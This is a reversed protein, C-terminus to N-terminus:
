FLKGKEGSTNVVQKSSFLQFNEETSSAFIENARKTINAANHTLAEDATGIINTATMTLDKAANHMINAGAATSVNKGAVNNIHEGANITATQGANIIVNRANFTMTEPATITINKGQTDLHITNGGPDRIIIHTGTNGNDNLEITHGSRTTISKTINDTGGGAGNNGHFLSGMVFPRAVNGEEFGVLVQDGKEPIFVFGRNKSVLDSNGGDPTLVRLWETTDNNNCQWKFQVKIRGQQQPDQNDTVQALQMDALPKTYAPAPLKESDANIGEFHNLYHGVGDIEHTVATILFKGIDSTAFDGIGTRLSTSIAAIGGLQVQPNDGTGTVKLLSSIRSLEENDTHTAIASPTSLRISGPGSHLTGFTARSAQLAHVQDPQSASGRGSQAQLLENAPSHYAFQQNNLPTIGIGYQLEKVDRGYVLAAEPLQAPKGFHLKLGDYFFWEHYEAALRVIFNFDSERYQIIYDITDTFAPQVQLNLDNSPVGQALKNVIGSLDKGLYSGVDAGRDLLITPSYGSIVLSGHYGQRQSVAVRTIKGVFHQAAGSARGFEIALNKGIFDRSKDLSVMGPMGLTDNNFHLEFYHHSNFSQKLVFSTFHPIVTGEIDIAVHLKEYM